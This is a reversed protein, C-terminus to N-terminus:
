IAIRERRDRTWAWTLQGAEPAGHDETLGENRLLPRAAGVFVLIQEVVQSIM